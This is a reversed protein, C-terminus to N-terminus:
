IAHSQFSNCRSRIFSFQHRTSREKLANSCICIHQDLLSMASKCHVASQIQCQLCRICKEPVTVLPFTCKTYQNWKFDNSRICKTYEPSMPYAIHRTKVKLNIYSLDLAHISSSHSLLLNIKELKSFETEVANSKNFCNAVAKVLLAALIALLRM